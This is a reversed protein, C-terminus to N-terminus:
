FYTRVDDLLDQERILYCLDRGNMLRVDLDDAIQRAQASFESTTVVVVSDVNEEQQRLSAYQQIQSSSVKNSAQYRKAQILHRQLVPSRREAIVDIGKDASATTVSTEWGISTWLDAVLHEFEYGDVSRLNRLLEADSMSSDTELTSEAGTTTATPISQRSAEAIDPGIREVRAIRKEMRPHTAWLRSLGSGSLGSFCIAARANSIERNREASKQVKSLASAMADPNGTYRVADEDAVYERYRSIVRVFLLLFANVVVSVGVGLLRVIWPHDTQTSALFFMVLVGLSLLQVISTGLGMLVSDRHKLHAFEHAAITEIEAVTLSDTLSRSFFVKGSGRRGLAFANLDDMEVLYLKPMSIDMDESLQEMRDYFEPSDARTIEDADEFWLPLQVKLLYQVLILGALGLVAPIIGAAAFLFLGIVAYIATLVTGAIAMRLTLGWDRM